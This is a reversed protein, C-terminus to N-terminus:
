SCPFIFSNDASDHALSSLEHGQILILQLPYDTSNRFVYTLDCLISVPLNRPNLADNGKEVTKM